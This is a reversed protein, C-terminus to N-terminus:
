LCLTPPEFGEAGVLFSIESVDSIEKKNIGNNDPGTTQSLTLRSLTFNRNNQTKRIVPVFCAYRATLLHDPPGKCRAPARQHLERLKSQAAPLGDGAGTNGSGNDDPSINTKGSLDDCITVKTRSIRWKEPCVSWNSCEM